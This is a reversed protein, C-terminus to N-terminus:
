RASGAQGMVCGSTLEHVGSFARASLNEPKGPANLDAGLRCFRDLGISFVWQGGATSM